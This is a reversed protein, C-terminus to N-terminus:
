APGHRLRHLVLSPVRNTQKEAPWFLHPDPTKESKHCTLKHTINSLVSFINLIRGFSVTSSKKLMQVRLPM